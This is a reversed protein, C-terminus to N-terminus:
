NKCKGYLVVPYTKLTKKLGNQVAPARQRERRSVNNMVNMTNIQHKIKWCCSEAVAPSLMGLVGQM